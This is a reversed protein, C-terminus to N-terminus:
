AMRSYEIMREEPAKRHVVSVLLVESGRCEIDNVCRLQEQIAESESDFPGFYYGCSPSTALIELWWSKKVFGFMQNILNEM